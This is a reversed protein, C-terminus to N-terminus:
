EESVMGGLGLAAVDRRALREGALLRPLLLDIVNRKLSQGCGPVCLVPTEKLYALAVLNGPEVPAGYLLTSAGASRLARPVTDDEDMISTQGAIIVLDAAQSVLDVAQAVAGEEEPVGELGVLGAGLQLVRTELSSLYKDRLRPQVSDEGVLVLAVRRNLPLPRLELIGPRPQALELGRELDRRALAFPVIKLTAVQAIERAPGALTNPPRTALAVGPILNLELLRGADVVLLGDLRARFNVRGGMPRTLDLDPTRLAEALTLAAEDEPLDDAELVGVEVALRGMEALAALHTGDLRTGKKLVTTGGANALNHMLITGATESVPRTEVRM